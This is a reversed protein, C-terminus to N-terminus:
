FRAAVLRAPHSGCGDSNCLPFTRHRQRRDSRWLRGCRAVGRKRAGGPAHASAAARPNPFPRLDIMCETCSGNTFSPSNCSGKDLLNAWQYGFGNITALGYKLPGKNTNPGQAGTGVITAVAGSWKAPDIDYTHSHPDYPGIRAVFNMPKVNVLPRDLHLLAVDFAYWWNNIGYKANVSAETCAFCAPDAGNGNCCDYANVPAVRRRGIVGDVRYTRSADTHDTNGNADAVRVQIIPTNSAQDYNFGACGRTAEVIMHGATAIVRDSLAVGTGWGGNSDVGVVAPYIHLTDVTGGALASRVEGLRGDPEGTVPSHNDGCAVM